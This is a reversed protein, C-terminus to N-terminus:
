RGPPALRLPKSRDPESGLGPRGVGRRTTSAICRPCHGDAVPPPADVKRAVAAAAASGYTGRPDGEDWWAQQQDCRALLCAPHDCQVCPVAPSATLQALRTDVGAQRRRARGVVILLYYLLITALQVLTMTADEATPVDM